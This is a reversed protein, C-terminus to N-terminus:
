VSSYILMVIEVVKVAQKLDGQGKVDAFDKADEQKDGTTTFVDKNQAM